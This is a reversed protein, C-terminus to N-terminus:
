PSLPPTPRAVVLLVALRGLWTVVLLVLMWLALLSLVLAALMVPNGTADIIVRRVKNFSDQSALTDGALARTVAPAAPVWGQRARQALLVRIYRRHRRHDRRRASLHGRGLHGACSPSSTARQVVVTRAGCDESTHM